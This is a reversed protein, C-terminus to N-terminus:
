SAGGGLATEAKEFVEVAHAECYRWKALALAPSNTPRAVGPQARKAHLTVVVTALEACRRCRDKVPVRDVFGGM